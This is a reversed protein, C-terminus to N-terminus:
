ALRLKTRMEPFLVAAIADFRRDPEFKAREAEFKQMVSLQQAPTAAPRFIEWAALFLHGYPRKNMQGMQMGVCLVAFPDQLKFGIVRDTQFTLLVRLIGKAGWFTQELGPDFDKSWFRHRQLNLLSAVLADRAPADQGGEHFAYALHLVRRVAVDWDGPTEDPRISSQLIQHWYGHGRLSQEVLEESLTCFHGGRVKRWGHEVMMRVTIEDELKEAAKNDPVAHEHQFLVRVPPHLRTWVSGDGDQHQRVRNVINDSIGVYYHGDALELVYFWKRM